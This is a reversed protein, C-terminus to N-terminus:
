EFSFYYGHYPKHNKAAMSLNSRMSNIKSKLNLQEKLWECCEGIYSFTEICNMDSDFVSVRKAMGNQAGPRPYYQYKLEPNQQLKIKLTDNGFNPNNAGYQNKLRDQTKQKWQAYTLADMREEPSVGYMPNKEGCEFYGSEGGYTHNVLFQTNIDLEAGNNMLSYGDELYSMIMQTETKCAENETLGNILIYPICGCKEHVYQHAKSRGKYTKYRNGHGKGIYFCKGNDKRFHGYVYFKKDEM